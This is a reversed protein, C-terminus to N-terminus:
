RYFIHNGIKAIVRKSSAWYPRVSTAHYFLADPMVPTYKNDYVMTAVEMARDWAPGTPEPREFATWSFHAVLRRRVRDWRTDHVVECITDPFHRSALRNMTVEAIAYQGKLPEGRAEFYINEALCRLDVARKRAADERAVQLPMPVSSAFHVIVGLLVIPVGLMALFAFNNDRDGLRWYLELRRRRVVFWSRVEYFLSTLM